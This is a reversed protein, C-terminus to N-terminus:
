AGQARREPGAGDVVSIRELSMRVNSLSAMAFSWPVPLRSSRM